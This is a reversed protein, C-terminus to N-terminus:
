ISPEKAPRRSQSRNSEVFIQKGRCWGLRENGHDKWNGQQTDLSFFFSFSLLGTRIRWITALEVEIIKIRNWLIKLFLWENRFILGRTIKKIIKIIRSIRNSEFVIIRKSFDSFFFNFWYRDEEFPFIAKTGFILNEFNILFNLKEWKKLNRLHWINEFRTCFIRVRGKRRLVRHPKELFLLRNVAGVHHFEHGGDVALYTFSGLDALPDHFFFNQLWAIVWARIADDYQAHVPLATCPENKALFSSPLLCFWCVSSIYIYININM